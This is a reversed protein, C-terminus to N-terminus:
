TMTQNSGVKRICLFDISLMEAARRTSQILLMVTCYKNNIQAMNILAHKPLNQITHSPRAYTTM